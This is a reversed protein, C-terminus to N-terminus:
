GPAPPMQYPTDIRTNVESVRRSDGHDASDHVWPRPTRLQSAHVYKPIEALVEPGRSLNEVRVDRSRISRLPHNTQIQRRSSTQYSPFTPRLCSPLLGESQFDSTLM